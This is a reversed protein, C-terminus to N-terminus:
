KKPPPPPPRLKKRPGATPNAPPGKPRYLHEDGTAEVSADDNEYDGNPERGDTSSQIDSASHEASVDSLSGHSQATVNGTDNDVVTNDSYASM